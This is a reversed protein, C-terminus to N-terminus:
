EDENDEEEMTNDESVLDEQEEELERQLLKAQSKIENIEAEDLGVFMKFFVEPPILMDVSGAVYKAFAEVKAKLVESKDKESPSALDPWVIQYDEIEPLAGFTILRDILPRVVYPSLYKNQRRKVRKNWNEIDQESALKAQESGMFVRKPIGMAISIIELQVEVHTKPDAVQPQLSNVTIGQLRLYRQLGNAYSTIQETIATNEDDTPVKANPDMEFSYGPFGGKWFMEGSGGMIKRLDYLRNFLTQMRPVGYVESSKRNDAIHICRTWHVMVEKGTEKVTGSASGNKSSATSEEFTVSYMTPKGYRPNTTNNECSVIKLVSEDFARLYILEYASNGVKEGMENIGEVPENLKKGDNIGLLIIGFRGIGSIEDVKMMYSYLNKKREIRIWEEEFVTNSIDENEIIMPDDSWSEQPFIEVVRTAIGERDYLLRYQDTNISKPYGCEDDIDRRDDILKNLLTTRSVVENSIMNQVFSKDSESLQESKKNNVIVKKVKKAM